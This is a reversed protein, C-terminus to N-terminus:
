VDKGINTTENNTESNNKVCISTITQRLMINLKATPLRSDKVEIYYNLNMHSYFCAFIKPIHTM